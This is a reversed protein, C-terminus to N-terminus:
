GHTRPESRADAAVRVRSDALLALAEVHHTQPFFDYPIIKEVGYGADTFGGLDRALTGASCSLYAIRTPRARAVWDRVEHELGLRPPNAYLVWERGRSSVWRDIQPIRDSARGILIESASGRALLTRACSVAEESVEVGLFEAGADQWVLLSSGVGTGLDVVAVRPAPRLFRSAEALSDDHLEPLLQQFSSPGYSLRPEQESRAREAGFLLVWGRSFFVRDGASPNFNAFVGQVGLSSLEAGDDTGLIASKLARTTEDSPKQKLVLTVMAGAISLFKFSVQASVRALLATVIANVRPSHVPCRAIEVLEDEEFRSRAKLLLGASWAGGVQGARPRVHLLTRERYGWARELKPGRVPEIRDAWAGL